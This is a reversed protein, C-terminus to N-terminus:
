HMGVSHREVSVVQGHRLHVVVMEAKELGPDELGLAEFVDPLVPRHTCIVTPGTEGVVEVAARVLKRLKRRHVDEESLLDLLEPEAGTTRCYPAVTDACRVSSSTMVRRVDYAALVHTLRESQRHGTM